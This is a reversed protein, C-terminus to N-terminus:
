FPLEFEAIIQKIDEIKSYLDEIQVLYRVQGENKPNNRIREIKKELKPIEPKLAKAIMEQEWNSFVYAFKGRQISHEVDM